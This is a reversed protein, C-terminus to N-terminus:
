SAAGTAVPPGALAAAVRELGVARSAKVLVADGPRAVSRVATVAAAHDDVEHVDIGRAAAAAALGDTGPGVVVLATVGADAVRDGLAAHESAALPGLERMEGLVALRTGSVPLAALSELAARMSTPSANYADNLVVLGDDTRVLEMRWAAGGATALGAVVADLPVGQDLAVAAALAANEAQYAGRVALRVQTASGWPSDLRFTPRLGPDLRVDSARVEAAPDTGATLV